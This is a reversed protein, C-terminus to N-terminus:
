PCAELRAMYWPAPSGCIDSRCMLALVWTGGLAPDIGAFAQGQADTLISLKESEPVAGSAVGRYEKDFSIDLDLIKGDLQDATFPFHLVRIDSITGDVFEEGVANTVMANWDVTIAASGAPIMISPKSAIVANAM